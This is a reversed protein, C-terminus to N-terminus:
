NRLILIDRFHTKNNEPPDDNFFWGSMQLCHIITATAAKVM